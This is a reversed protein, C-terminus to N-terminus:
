RNLIEKAEYNLTDLVVAHIDKEKQNLIIELLQKNLDTARADPPLVNAIQNITIMNQDKLNRVAEWAVRSVYIQQSSNYEFEQKINDILVMQMEKATYQPQSVRSILNPLAIRETLMVLREYAQLQLPISNFFEKPAQIKKPKKSQFYSVIAIFLAVVSIILSISTEEM